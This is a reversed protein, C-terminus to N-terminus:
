VTLYVPERSAALTTHRTPSRLVPGSDIV